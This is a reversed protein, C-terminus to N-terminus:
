FQAAFDDNGEVTAKYDAFFPRRLAALVHGQFLLLAHGVEFLHGCVHLEAV